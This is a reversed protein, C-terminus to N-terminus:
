VKQQWKADCCDTEVIIFKNEDDVVNHVVETVIGQLMYTTNPSYVYTGVVKEGIRPIYDGEFIYAICVSGGIKGGLEKVKNVYINGIHKRKTTSEKKKKWFM